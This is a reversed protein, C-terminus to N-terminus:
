PSPTACTGSSGDFSPSPSLSLKTVATKFWSPEFTKKNNLTSSTNNTWYQYLDQVAFKFSNSTSDVKSM